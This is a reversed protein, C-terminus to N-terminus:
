NQTLKAEYNLLFKAFYHNYLAHLSTGFNLIVFPVSIVLKEKLHMAKNIVWLKLTKSCNNSYKAFLWKVSCMNKIDLLINKISFDTRQLNYRIASTMKISSTMKKCGPQCQNDGRPSDNDERCDQAPEFSLRLLNTIKLRVNPTM